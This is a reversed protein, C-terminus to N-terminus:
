RKNGFTKYNRRATGTPQQITFYPDVTEPQQEEVQQEQVTEGEGLWGIKKMFDVPKADGGSSTIVNEDNEYDADDDEDEVQGSNSQKNVSDPSYAPSPNTISDQKLKKKQKNRKRNKQSLKYIENLSNPVREEPPTKIVKPSPPRINQPTVEQPQISSNTNNNHDQKTPTRFDGFSESMIRDVKARNEEDMELTDMFLSPNTKESVFLKRDSRNGNMHVDEDEDSSSLLEDDTFNLRSILGPQHTWGASQYLQDVNLPQVNTPQADIPAHAKFTIPQTVAHSPQQQQPTNTQDVSKIAEQILNFIINADRSVYKSVPHCLNLLENVNKPQGETLNLIMHRPMVYRVSEDVARATQDRWQYLAKLVAVTKADYRPNSYILHSDPKLQEKEYRRLCLERSRTLVDSVREPGSNSPPRDYMEQKLIACIYLLYHTDERAYKVMESPLPRIRWDALQYKKDADVKCYQRLLYQLSFGPLNLVRAAQGTDFMNVVYIGFDRQLWIIDCDAGHMIKIISPDTFSENLINLHQRLQLTDVLYDQELTSIQMLCVFGQFSRYSHSELDIAFEKQKNLTDSLEKLQELNDVWTCTTEELSRYAPAQKPRCLDAEKFELCLLEPEYPHPLSNESPKSGVGDGPSYKFPFEEVGAIAYKKQEDGSWTVKLSQELTAASAHPKVTLKPQFAANSNNVDTWQTQPRLLTKIKMDISMDEDEDRQEGDDDQSRITGQIVRKNTHPAEMEDLSIDVSEFYSDLLDVTSDYVDVVDDTPPIDVGSSSMFHSLTGQLRDAYKSM